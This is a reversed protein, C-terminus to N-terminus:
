GQGSLVAARPWTQESSASGSALPGSAVSGRVPRGATHEAPEWEGSLLLVPALAPQLATTEEQDSKRLVHM